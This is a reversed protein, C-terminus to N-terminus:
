NVGEYMKMFNIKPKTTIPMIGKTKGKVKNQREDFDNTRVFGANGFTEFVPRINEIDGSRINRDNTFRERWQGLKHDEGYEGKESEVENLGKLFSKQFEPSEPYHLTNPLGEDKIQRERNYESLYDHLMDKQIKMKEDQNIKNELPTVGSPLKSDSFIQNEGGVISKKRKDSHPFNNFEDGGSAIFSQDTHSQDENDKYYIKKGDPMEYKLVPNTIKKLNIKKNQRPLFRKNKYSIAIAKEQPTQM